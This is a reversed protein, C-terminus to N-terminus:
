RDVGKLLTCFWKAFPKTKASINPVFTPLGINKQKFYLCPMAINVQVPQFSFTRSFLMICIVFIVFIKAFGLIKALVSSLFPFVTFCRLNM